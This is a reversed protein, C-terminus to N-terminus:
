NYPYKSEERIVPKSRVRTSKPSKIKTTEQCHIPLTKNAHRMVKWQFSSMVHLNTFALYFRCIYELRGPVLCQGSKSKITAIVSPESEGQTQNVTRGEIASSKWEIFIVYLCHNMGIHCSNSGEGFGADGLPTRVQAKRLLMLRPRLCFFRLVCPGKKHIPAISM